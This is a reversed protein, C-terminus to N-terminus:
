LARSLADPAAYAASAQAQVKNLACKIIIKLSLGARYIQPLSHFLHTPLASQGRTVSQRPTRPPGSMGAKSSNVRMAVTKTIRRVRDKSRTLTTATGNIAHEVMSPMFGKAVALYLVVISGTTGGSSM